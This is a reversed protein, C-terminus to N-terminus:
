EPELSLKSSIMKLPNIISKLLNSTSNNNKIFENLGNQSIDSINEDRMFAILGLKIALRIDEAEQKTLKIM